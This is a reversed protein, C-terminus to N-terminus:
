AENLLDQAWADEESILEPESPPPAVALVRPPAALYTSTPKSSSKSSRGSCTRREGEEAALRAQNLAKHCREWPNTSTGNGGIGRDSAINGLARLISSFPIGEREFTDIMPVLIECLLANRHDAIIAGLESTDIAGHISDPLHSM